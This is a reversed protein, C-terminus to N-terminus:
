KLRRDAEGKAVDLHARERMRELHRVINAM